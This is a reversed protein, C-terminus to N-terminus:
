INIEENEISARKLTKVQSYDFLRFIIKDITVLAKLILFWEKLM